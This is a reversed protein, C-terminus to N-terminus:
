TMQMEAEADDQFQPQGFVQKCSEYLEMLEDKTPERGDALAEEIAKYDEVILDAQKDNIIFEGGMAEAVKEGDNNIMHIPNTEHSAEGPLPGQVPPMDGRSQLIQAMVGGGPMKIGNEAFLRRGLGIAGMGFPNFGTQNSVTEGLNGVLGAGGMGFPNMSPPQQTPSSTTKPGTLGAVSSAISSPDMAGAKKPRGSFAGAQGSPDMASPQGSFPTSAQAGEARAAGGSIKSSIKNATKNARKFMGGFFHQPVGGEDEYLKGGYKMEPVLGGFESSGILGAAVASGIGGLIDGFAGKREQQMNALNQQGQAQAQEAQGLQRMGLERQFAQNSEEAATTLQQRQQGLNALGKMENDLQQQQAQTEMQATGQLLPNLGALLTRSGGSELAQLGAAQAQQMPDTDVRQKSMEYLDQYAPDLSFNYDYGGAGAKGYFDSIDGAAADINSQQEGQANKGTGFLGAVGGLATGVGSVIDASPDYGSSTTTTTGGDSYKKPKRREYM